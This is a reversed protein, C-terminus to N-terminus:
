ESPTFGVLEGELEQKYPKGNFTNNWRNAFFQVEMLAMIDKQEKETYLTEFEEVLEEDPLEGDFIVWDRVIMLAVWQRHDFDSPDLVELEEINEDTLGARRGSRSHFKM